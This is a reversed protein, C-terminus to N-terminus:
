GSNKANATDAIILTEFKQLNESELYRVDVEVSYKGGSVLNQRVFYNGEWFGKSNTKGTLHALEIGEIDSLKVDIEAQNIAGLSQFFQPKPNISKDFVKVEIDYNENWFTRIDQQVLVIMEIPILNSKIESSVDPEIPTTALQIADLQNSGILYSNILFKNNELGKAYILINESHVVFSNGMIKTRANEIEIIQDGIVLMGSQLTPIIRNFKSIINEGFDLFLVIDGDWSEALLNKNEIDAVGFVSHPVLILLGISIAVIREM